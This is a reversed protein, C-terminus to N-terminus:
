RSRLLVYLTGTIPLLTLIPLIQHLGLLVSPVPKDTSPLAKAAATGAAFPVTVLIAAIKLLAM